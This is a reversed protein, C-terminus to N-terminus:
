APFTMEISYTVTIKKNNAVAVPSALLNREILYSRATGSYTLMLWGTESVSISSGSTNSFARSIAQTMKKTGSDYSANSRSGAGYAMKGSTTGDGIITGLSFGDFSEAETGIGIVIGQTDDTVAGSISELNYHGPFRVTGWEKVTGATDKMATYGAGFTATTNLFGIINAICNYFNRNFSNAKETQVMEVKGTEIDSVETKIFVVPPPPLHMKFCDDNIKNLALKIEPTVFNREIM